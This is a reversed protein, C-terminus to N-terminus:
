QCDTQFNFRSFFWGLLGCGAIVVFMPVSTGNHVYGVLIGVTGALGMQVFGFLASAAGAMNQHPGIAGATANPMVLGVSMLYLCVPIIIGFVSPEFTLQIGLGLLSSLIALRGGFEIMRSLGIKSTF